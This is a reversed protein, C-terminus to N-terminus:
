ENKFYVLSKIKSYQVEINIEKVQKIFFNMRSFLSEYSSDESKCITSNSNLDIKQGYQKCLEILKDYQQNYVPTIKVLSEYLISKM